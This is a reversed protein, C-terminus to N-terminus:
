YGNFGSMEGVDKRAKKRVTYGEAAYGLTILLGIRTARPINLLKKISNEDFWGLMCTGLGLDAAQMCFNEAAIGIDILPFCRNKVRGGIRTILKEKEITLVAIVPAGPVFKNFSVVASFTAQAVKDKLGPDDVILIKWPQSNHASPSLRVSEILTRLKEQEIPKDSYKRVSQRVHLLESFEM